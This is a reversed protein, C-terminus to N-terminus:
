GKNKHKGTEDREAKERALRKYHSQRMYWPWKSPDKRWKESMAERDDHFKKLKADDDKKMQSTEWTGDAIMKDREKREEALRLRHYEQENTFFQKTLDIKFNHAKRYRSYRFYWHHRGCRHRILGGRWAQVHPDNASMQPFELNEELWLKVQSFM